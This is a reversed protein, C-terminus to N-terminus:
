NVGQEERNNAIAVGTIGAGTFLGAGGLKARSTNAALIDKQTPTVEADVLVRRLYQNASEGKKQKVKTRQKALKVANNRKRTTTDRFQRRDFRNAGIGMKVKVLPSVTVLGSGSPPNVGLIDHGDNTMSYFQKKKPDIAYFNNMGGLDKQMKSIFSQQTFIHGDPVKIKDFDLNSVVRGSEDSLRALKVNGEEIM